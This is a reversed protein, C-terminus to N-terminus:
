MVNTIIMLFTKVVNKGHVPADITHDMIIGYSSLLVNMLYIALACSYEKVCINTDEWLTSM